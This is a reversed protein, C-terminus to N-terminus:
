VRLKISGVSSSSTYALLGHASEGATAVIFWRLIRRFAPASSALERDASM